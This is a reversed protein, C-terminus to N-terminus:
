PLPLSYRVAAQSVKDTIYIVNQILRRPDMDVRYIRVQTPSEQVFMITSDGSIQAVAHTFPEGVPRGRLVRAYQPDGPDIRHVGGALFGGGSLRDWGGSRRVAARTLTELDADEWMASVVASRIGKEGDTFDDAFGLWVARRVAVFRQVALVHARVMAALTAEPREAADVRHLLASGAEILAQAELSETRPTDGLMIEIDEPSEGVAALAGALGDFLGQYRLLAERALVLAEACSAGPVREVRPTDARGAPQIMEVRVELSNQCGWASLLALLVVAPGCWAAWWCPHGSGHGAKAGKARDRVM